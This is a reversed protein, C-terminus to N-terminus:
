KLEDGEGESTGCVSHSKQKVKNEEENCVDKCINKGIIIVYTTLLMMSIAVFVPVLIM